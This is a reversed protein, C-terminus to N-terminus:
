AEITPSEGRKQVGLSLSIQLMSGGRLVHLIIKGTRQSARIAQNFTQHNHVNKGNLSLLIDGDQLVGTTQGSGGFMGFGFIGFGQTQKPKDKSGIVLLGKTKKPLKLKRLMPTTLEQFSVHDFISLDSAKFATSTEEKEELPTVNITLIQNNRLITFSVATNPLATSEALEFDAASDIDQDNVRIIIDGVNLVAINKYSESLEDIVIGTHYYTDNILQNVKLSEESTPERMSAIGFSVPKTQSFYKILQAIILDAPIAFAVGNSGGGKSYIANNIGILHGYQDVLAGGSNGPNVAANHQLVTPAPAGSAIRLRRKTASIIGNTFNQGLNFSNGLAAVPMGNKLNKSTGIKLFPLGKVQSNIQLIALDLEEFNALIKAQFKRGDSLRVIIKEAGDIVHSCSILLGKDSILVASGASRIVEKMIRGSFPDFGSFFPQFFPDTMFINNAAETEIDVVAPSAFAALKSFDAGEILSTKEETAKVFFDQHATQSLAVNIGSLMGILGIAGLINM